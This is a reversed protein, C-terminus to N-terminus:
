LPNLSIRFQRQNWVGDGGPTRDRAAQILRWDLATNDPGPTIEYVVGYGAGYENTLMGAVRIRGQARYERGKYIGCFDFNEM